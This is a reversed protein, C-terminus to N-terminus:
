SHLRILGMRNNILNEKFIKFAEKTQMTVKSSTSTSFQPVSISLYQPEMKTDICFVDYVELGLRDQSIYSIIGCVM